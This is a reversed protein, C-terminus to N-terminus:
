GGDISVAETRPAVVVPHAHRFSCGEEQDTTSFVQKDWAGECSRDIDRWGGRTMKRLSQRLLMKVRRRWTRWRM